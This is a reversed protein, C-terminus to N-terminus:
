IGDTVAEEEKKGGGNFYTYMAAIVAVVAVGIISLKFYAVLVFGLIMFHVLDRKLMIRLLIAFGVAPMMGGAAQFGGLIFDPISEIGKQALDAGLYLPLFAFLFYFIFLPIMGALNMLEVGKTNLSEAYRDSRHILWANGTYVLNLAAQVAISFPVAIGIAVQADVNTLIAFATGLIGGIISNPPQAGGIPMVGLFVLELTGGVILGKVPDGLILGVIIGSVIPRHFHLLTDDSDLGSLGAFISILLIQFFM